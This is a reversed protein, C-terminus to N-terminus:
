RGLAALEAALEALLEPREGALSARERPDRSLDFLETTGARRDEILKFPWRLVAALERETALVPGRDIARGILMARLDAGDGELAAGVMAAATPGVDALSVPAAVRRPSLGPALVLLPVRLQEEYLSGGHFSGGHDGHEEGHDASIVLVVERSLPALGERLRAIARDVRAIEGDYRDVPADGLETSRYPEHVDFYHAWVFAPPEGRARLDALEALVADTLSEADHDEADRRAFGLERARHADVREGEHFFVGEPYFGATHYGLSALRDALTEAPLPRGAELRAHVLAGTMLSTLAYSSRPTPTWAREFVVAEAALGDLSPSIERAYGYLGLHDARLADVTVIVVHAGQWRPLEGSALAARRAREAERARRVAEESAHARTASFLAPSLGLMLSRASATRPSLLAARGDHDSPLSALTLALAGAAPLAFRAPLAARRPLAIWAGLTACAWAALALVAHLAEYHRPYLLQDAKALALAALVAAIALPARGRRARALALSARLAAYLALHLVVASLAVWASVMPLRSARGGEFLSSSVLVIAPSAVALAALPALARPSLRARRALRVVLPRAVRDLLVVVSALLAGAPVLLGLLRLALLARDSAHPLWLWAAFYDACALM